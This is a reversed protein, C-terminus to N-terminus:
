GSQLGEAAMMLVSRRAAALEEETLKHRGNVGAGYRGERELRKRWGRESGPYEEAGKFMVAFESPSYHERLPFAGARRLADAADAGAQIAEVAARFDLAARVLGAAPSRDCDALFRAQDPSLLVDFAPRGIAPSSPRCITRVKDLRPLDPRKRVRQTERYEIWDTFWRSSGFLGHLKRASIYTAGRRHDAPTVIALVQAFEQPLALAVPTTTPKKAHASRDVPSKPGDKMARAMNKLHREAIRAVEADVQALRTLAAKLTSFQRRGSSSAAARFMEASTYKFRGGTRSATQEPGSGVPKSGFGVKGRLQPVAATLQDAWVCLYRSGSSTNWWLEIGNVPTFDDRM